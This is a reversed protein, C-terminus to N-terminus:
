SISRAASHSANVPSSAFWNRRSRAELRSITSWARRRNGGRSTSAGAVGLSGAPSTRCLREPYSSPATATTASRRTAPPRRRAMADVAASAQVPTAIRSSAKGRIM